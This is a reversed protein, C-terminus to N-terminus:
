DRWKGAQALKNKLGQLPAGLDYAKRAHQVSRDYDKLDLYLLGLNYHVTASEGAHMEAAELQSL